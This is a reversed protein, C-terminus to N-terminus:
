TVKITILIGATIIFVVAGFILLINVMSFMYCVSKLVGSCIGDGLLESFVSAFRMSLSWISLEAVAPLCILGFTAIAFVGVASRVLALSGMVSSYAEGLAGGIVPVFTGVALKIGRSALHDAAGAVVSKMTLFGTFLGAASGLVTTSTKKILESIAGLNVSTVMSGMVGLAGVAGALPLIINESLSQIVQAAAFATGQVSFALTPNGSATVIGALVPILAKSFDACAGLASVGAKICVFASSFVATVLFSSCVLSIIQRFKEDQQVFCSCVSGLIIVSVAKAVTKVPESLKGKFVDEILELLAEPEASLIKEYEIEEFGLKKLYGLTERDLYDSLEKAGSAEIGKEFYDDTNVACAKINFLFVTIIVSVFVIIGKLKKM